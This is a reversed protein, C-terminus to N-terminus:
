IFDSLLLPKTSTRRSRRQSATDAYRKAIDPGYTGAQIAERLHGGTHGACVQAFFAERRTEGYYGLLTYHDIRRDTLLAGRLAHDALNM